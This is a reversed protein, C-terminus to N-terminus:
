AGAAAGTLQPTTAPALASAAGERARAAQVVLDAAAEVSLDDTDLCLDYRRPDLWDSRWLQKVAGRRNGDSERVRDLAHYGTLGEAVAIREVRRQLSGVVLVHLVGPVGRLAENGSRGVFVVNGAAAEARMTRAFLAAYAELAWYAPAILGSGRARVPGTPPYSDGLVDPADPDIPPLPVLRVLDLPRRLMSRGREDLAALTGAPIGSRASALVLLEGDLVRCGLEQAARAAIVEGGSGLQRAVTFVPM